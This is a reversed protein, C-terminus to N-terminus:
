GEISIYELEDVHVDECDIEVIVEKTEEIVTVKLM